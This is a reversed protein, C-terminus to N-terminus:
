CFMNLLINKLNMMDYCIDTSGERKYGVLLSMTHTLQRKVKKITVKLAYFNKIETFYLKNKRENNTSKTDNDLFENGFGLDCLNM